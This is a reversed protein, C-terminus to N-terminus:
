LKKASQRVALPGQPIFDDAYNKSTNVGMFDSMPKRNPLREINDIEWFLAVPTDSASSIPRHAKKHKQYQGREDGVDWGCLRGKIFVGLHKDASPSLHEQGSKSVYVYSVINEAECNRSFNREFFEIADSGFAFRKYGHSLDELMAQAHIIPVPALFISM